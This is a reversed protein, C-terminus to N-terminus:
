ISKMKRKRAQYYFLLVLLNTILHFLWSYLLGLNILAIFYIISSILTSFVHGSNKSSSYHVFGFILSVLGVAVVINFDFYFILFSLFLSRYILEEVLASMPFLLFMKSVKKFNLDNTFYQFFEDGRGIELVRPKVKFYFYIITLKILILSFLISFLVIEFSHKLGILNYFSFLFVPNNPLFYFIADLLFFLLVLILVGYLSIVKSKGEKKYKFFIM